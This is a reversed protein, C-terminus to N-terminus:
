VAHKDRERDLALPTKALRHHIQEMLQSIVRSPGTSSRQRDEYRASQSLKAYTQAPANKGNITSTNAHKSPNTPCPHIYGRNFRDHLM